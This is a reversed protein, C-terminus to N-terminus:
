HEVNTYRQGRAVTRIAARLVTGSVTKPLCGLAGASLMERAYGPYDLLSLGLVKVLPFHDTIYQTTRIGDLVPMRIDMLIVQIDLVALLKIVQQGDVAEGAVRITPDDSLVLRLGQRILPHDDAILLHIANNMKWFYRIPDCCAIVYILPSRGAEM